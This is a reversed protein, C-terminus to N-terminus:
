LDMDAFGEGILRHPDFQDIGPDPLDVEHAVSESVEILLTKFKRRIVIGETETYVSSNSFSVLQLAHARFLRYVIDRSSCEILPLDCKSPKAQCALRVFEDPANEFVSFEERIEALNGRRHEILRCKVAWYDSVRITKFRLPKGARM